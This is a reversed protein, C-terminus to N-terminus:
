VLSALENVVTCKASAASLLPGTGKGTEGVADASVDVTADTIRFFDNLGYFVSDGLQRNKALFPSDGVTWADYASRGRDVVNITAAVVPQGLARGAGDAEGQLMTQDVTDATEWFELRPFTVGIQPSPTSVAAQGANTSSTVTGTLALATANESYSDPQMTFNSGEVWGPLQGGIRPAWLDLFTLPTPPDVTRDWEFTERWDFGGSLGALQKVVALVGRRDTAKISLDRPVGSLGGTGPGHMRVIVGLDGPFTAAHNFLDAVINFQDVGDWEIVNPDAVARSGDSQLAQNTAFSMGSTSQIARRAGHPGDDYLSMMGLSAMRVESDATAPATTWLVGGYPITSDRGAVKRVVYIATNGASLVERNVLAQWTPAYGDLSAVDDVKVTYSFRAPVIAKRLGTLLEYAHLTYPM